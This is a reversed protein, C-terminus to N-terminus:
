ILKMYTYLLIHIFLDSEFFIEYVRAVQNIQEVLVRRTNIRESTPHPIRLRVFGNEGFDSVRKTAYIVPPIYLVFRNLTDVLEPTNQEKYIMEGTINLLKSLASEERYLRRRRGGKERGM